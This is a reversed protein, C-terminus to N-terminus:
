SSPLHACCSDGARGNGADEQPDEQLVPSHRRLFHGSGEPACLAGGRGTGGAPLGSSPRGRIGHLGSREPH